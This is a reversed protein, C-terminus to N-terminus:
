DEIRWHVPRMQFDGWVPEGDVGRAPTFRGNRLALRCTAADLWGSGSSSVLECKRPRGSPDIRLSIVVRGQQNRRRAEAPYSDEPFWDGMNGSPVPSTATSTRMEVPPPPPPVTVIAPPESGAPPAAPIAVPVPSSPPSYSPPPTMWRTFLRQLDDSHGAALVSVLMIIALILICCIALVAIMLGKGQDAILGARPKDPPEETMTAIRDGKAVQDGGTGAM